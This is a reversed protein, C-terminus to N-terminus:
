SRYHSWQVERIFHIYLVSVGRLEMVGNSGDGLPDDFMQEIIGSNSTRRLDHPHVASHDVMILFVIKVIFM